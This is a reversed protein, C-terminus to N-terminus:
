AARGAALESYLERYGDISNQLTFRELVKKRAADELSTRLADDSLLLHVSEAFAEPDRPKVVIGCGELAERVGGVDSAVVTRGCAMAEIVSYPFAESISTLTVLHASRYAPVVDEVHQGMAVVDDLLLESRLALCRKHYPADVVSGSLTYRVDPDTLRVLAAMRLFTEIDKLPDIRATAVVHRAGPPRPGPSFREADVGNYVVRIKEEPTGHAREWRTNYRCVPSVRDAFHYNARSVATILNLLFRKSFILRRFRSLFLNQERMYVGHETLLMPTGYRLKAIICPIGCFAAATSHTVSTKPVPANLVILFRYLWRLSETIDFLTPTEEGARVANEAAVERSYRVMETRFAEWVEASKLTTNYDYRQFYTAMGELSEGLAQADTVTRNLISLFRVFLPLFEHEISERSTRRKRVYLHAFPIAQIFEAPEEVGWLPVNIVRFVNRPLDFKEEVHPNMMLPLLAYKIEPTRTLLADCWTSVGGLSYPYTGETTLLM